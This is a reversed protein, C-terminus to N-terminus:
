SIDTNTPYYQSIFDPSDGEIGLKMKQFDGKNELTNQTEPSPLRTMKTQQFLVVTHETNRRVEKGRASVPFKSHYKMTGYLRSEKLM